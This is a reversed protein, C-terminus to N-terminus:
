PYGYEQSRQPHGQVRTLGTGAQHMVGVTATLIRGVIVSLQEFGTADRAAHTALTIASIVGHGLAEEGGQFDLENVLCQKTCASLCYTFYEVVDLHEVIAHSAM